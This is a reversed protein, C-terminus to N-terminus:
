EEAGMSPQPYIKLAVLTGLVFMLPSGVGFWGPYDTTMTLNLGGFLLLLGGTALISGSSGKSVVGALVGGGTTSLFYLVLGGVWPNLGSPVLDLKAVSLVVVVPFLVGLLFGSVTGILKPVLAGTAM